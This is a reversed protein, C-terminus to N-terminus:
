VTNVVYVCFIPLCVFISDSRKTLHFASHGRLLCALQKKAEIEIYKRGISITDISNLRSQKQRNLFLFYVTVELKFQLINPVMEEMLGPTRLSKLVKLFLAQDPSM